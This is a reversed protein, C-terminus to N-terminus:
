NLQAPHRGKGFNVFGAWAARMQGADVPALEIGYHTLLDDVNARQDSARRRSLVVALEVASGVSMARRPAGRLARDLRPSEPEETEIAFLASTDIVM